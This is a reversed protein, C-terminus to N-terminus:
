GTRPTESKGTGGTESFESAPTTEGPEKSYLLSSLVGLARVASFSRSSRQTKDPSPLHLSLIPKRLILVPIELDGVPDILEQRLHLTGELGYLDELVTEPSPDHDDVAQGHDGIPVLMEVVFGKNVRGEVRSGARAPDEHDAAPVPSAQPLNEFVGYVLSDQHLDVPLDDLQGLPVERLQGAAEVMGLGLHDDFVAGAENALALLAEVGDDDVGRLGQAGGGDEEPPGEVLRHPLLEGGAPGHSALGAAVEEM